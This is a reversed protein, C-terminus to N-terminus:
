NQVTWKKIGYFLGIGFIVGISNMALDEISNTRGSIYLGQIIELLVGGVSCLVITYIMKYASSVFYYMLSLSLLLYSVVHAVVSFEDLLYNKVENINNIGIKFPHLKKTKSELISNRKATKMQQISMAPNKGCMEGLLPIAADINEPVCKIGGKDYPTGFPPNGFSQYCPINPYNFKGNGDFYYVTASAESMFNDGKLLLEDYFVPAETHPLCSLVSIIFYVFLPHRVIKLIIEM